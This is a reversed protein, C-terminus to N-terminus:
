QLIQFIDLIDFSLIYNQRNKKAKYKADFLMRTKFTRYLGGDMDSKCVGDQLPPQLNFM